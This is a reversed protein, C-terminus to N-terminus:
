GPVEGSGVVARVRSAAVGGGRVVKEINLRAWIICSCTTQAILYIKERAELRSGTRCSM